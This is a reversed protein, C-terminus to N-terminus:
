FVEKLFKWLTTSQFVKDFPNRVFINGYVTYGIYGIITALKLVMQSNYEFCVLTLPISIAQFVLFYNGLRGFYIPNGFLAIFTLEACLVSLNIVLNNAKNKSRRWFKAALFSIAVPAWAVLVRFVNVGEGTILSSDEYEVGVVSLLDIAGSLWTQMSFGALACVILMIFTPPSWPSFLLFPSILFMASFPHFLVGIFVWIFFFVKRGKLLQDIGLLCIATAVCQKMAALSFTYFGITFFLFVSLVIDNTYKWVFWLSIGITLASYFMVFSQTSFGMRKLIVNTLNFLPYEGISWNIQSLWDISVSLNEYGSIYAWTDNYNTRLGAFIVAAIIVVAYFIRDKYKYQGLRHDYVSSRHSLYAFILCIIYLPLIKRM